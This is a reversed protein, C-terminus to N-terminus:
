FEIANETHEGKRRGKEAMPKISRYFHLLRMYLANAAEASLRENFASEYANLFDQLEDGQLLM